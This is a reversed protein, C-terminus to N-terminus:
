AFDGPALHRDAAIHRHREPWHQPHGGPLQFNAIGIPGFVARHQARGIRRNTHVGHRQQATLDPDGVNLRLARRDPQFLAAIPAGTPLKGIARALRLNLCLRRGRAAGLGDGNLFQFDGIRRQNIVGFPGIQHRIM